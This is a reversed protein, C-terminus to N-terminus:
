AIGGEEVEIPRSIMLNVIVFLSQIGDNKNNDYFM